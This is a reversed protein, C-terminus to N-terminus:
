SPSTATSSGMKRLHMPIIVKLGIRNGISGSGNVFGPFHYGQHGRIQTLLSPYSLSVDPSDQQLVLATWREEVM